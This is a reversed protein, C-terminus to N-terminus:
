IKKLCKFDNYIKIKKSKNLKLLLSYAKKNIIILNKVNLLKAQNYLKKYNKEASLFKVEFKKKDKSLIDILTSGISGTSGLIGIKKKM